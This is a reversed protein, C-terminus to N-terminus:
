NGAEKMADSYLSGSVTFPNSGKYNHLKFVYQLIVTCIFM